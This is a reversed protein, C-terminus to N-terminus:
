CMLLLTMFAMILLIAIAARTAPADSNVNPADFDALASPFDRKVDLLHLVHWETVACDM